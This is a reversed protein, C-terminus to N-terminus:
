LRTGEASVQVIADLQKSGMLIKRAQVTKFRQTAAEEAEELHKETVGHDPQFKFRRELEARWQTLELVVGTSVNPIGALMLSDIQLATEVNYSELM